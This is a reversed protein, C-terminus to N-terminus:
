ESVQGGEFQWPREYNLRLLEIARDVDDDTRIPFSVWGTEPLVHHQEVRGAAILEDHVPMPFPIDVLHGGHLHGIERHGVTFEIGGFRHPKAVINPWASVEARIRDAATSTM